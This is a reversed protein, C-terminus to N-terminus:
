NEESTIYKRTNKYIINQTEDSIYFQIYRHDSMSITKLVQWDNIYNILSNNILTLDIYSEGRITHYSPTNINNNLLFLNLECMFEVVANGRSDDRNNYWIKSKANSDLSIILNEPKLTEIANKVYNLQFEISQFPSCYLSFGYIIKNKFELKVITLFETSLSEIFLVQIKPNVVVIATKIIDSERYYIKYNIPFGCVNRKLVYPEQTFIVDYNNDIIFQNLHATSTRGRQLNIQLCKITNNGLNRNSNKNSNM